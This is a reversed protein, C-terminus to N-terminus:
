ASMLRMLSRPMRGTAPHFTCEQMEKAEREWKARQAKSERAQRMRRIRATFSPETAMLRGQSSAFSSPPTYLVPKFTHTSKHLEEQQQRARQLSHQKRLYDGRSLSEWSRPSRAQSSPRIAPRFTCHEMEGLSGFGGQHPRQTARGSPAFSEGPPVIAKCHQVASELSVHMCEM